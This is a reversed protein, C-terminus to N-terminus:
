RDDNRRITRSGNPRASINREMSTCHSSKNQGFDNLIQDAFASMNAFSSPWGINPVDDFEVETIADLPM